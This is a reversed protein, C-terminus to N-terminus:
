IPTPPASRSFSLSYPPSLSSSLGCTFLLLLFHYSSHTSHHGRWFLYTWIRVGLVQSHLRIQFFADKFIYNNYNKLYSWGSNNTSPNLDLILHWQLLCHSVYSSFLAHFYPCLNADQLLLWPLGLHALLLLFLHEVQAKCPLIAGDSGQNGVEPNCLQSVSEATHCCSTKCGDAM